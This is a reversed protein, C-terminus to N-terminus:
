WRSALNRALKEHHEDWSAESARLPEFPKEFARRIKLQGVRDSEHFRNTVFEFNLARLRLVYRILYSPQPLQSRFIVLWDSFFSLFNTAKFEEEEIGRRYRRKKM